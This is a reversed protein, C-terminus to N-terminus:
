NRTEWIYWTPAVWVWYGSPLNRCNQYTSGTWWGWDNYEGFRADGDQPTCTRLLGSYRGNANARSAAGGTCNIDSNFNPSHLYMVAQARDRTVGSIVMELTGSALGAQINPSADPAVTYTMLCNPSIGEQEARALLAASGVRFGSGSAYVGWAPDSPQQAAAPVSIAAALFVAPLLRRTFSEM